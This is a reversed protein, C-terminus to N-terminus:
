KNKGLRNWYDIIENSYDLTISENMKAELLKQKKDPDIWWYYIPSLWNGSYGIGHEPMGFKNWNLCRYGYPAGWGFAWHYEDAALKDIKQLLKIREQANWNSDYEIILSDIIPNALGTINTADLKESYQSHMGGKPSPFLSGTWGAFQVQFKRDMLKEFPNQLVVLNLKIGIQELDQVLPNFIRDWGTYIYFNEIEFNEGNKTLWKDGPKKIWGAENLLKIALDPDYNQTPNDSNAYKSGPFWSNKRVYEHFFLKDMLKEVDWLHCFAKRTKIDNFPEELTNFALGGVGQPLFNIFKKRQILNRNIESYEDKVFKESWWQARSILYTDYDGAFFREVEQTEDNIFIFELVDFNFLGTNRPENMAWYDNRKDLVILGNNEQTTRETNLIYAGSGPMMEFQYKEIYTSGDIKELYYSPYVSLAAFGYLNRWEKKKSKVSVIYKTEAIPTNFKETWYTYVNPDGHGEDTLINYTAVVDKATVERGDSFTAKPNIRFLFTLSDNDVKWHTALKTELEFTESNLHLLNEYVLDEIVSNLQSRTEKGFARVTNPFVDAGLFHLTDGKIANKDGYITPRDNTKWGLRQAVLEFGEGGEYASITNNNNTRDAVENTDFEKYVKKREKGGCSFTLILIMIWNILYYKRHKM